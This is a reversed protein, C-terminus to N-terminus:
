IAMSNLPFVEPLQPVFLPKSRRAVLTTFTLHLTQNLALPGSVTAGYNDTILVSGFPTAALATQLDAITSSGITLTDTSHGRFILFFSTATGWINMEQVEQTFETVFASTIINQIETQRTDKAQIFLEAQQGAIGTMLGPGYAFSATPDVPANSVFISTPSGAIHVGNNTISM